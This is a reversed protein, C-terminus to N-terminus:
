ENKDLVHVNFESKNTGERYTVSCDIIGTNSDKILTIVTIDDIHDHPLAYLFVSKYTCDKVFSLSM